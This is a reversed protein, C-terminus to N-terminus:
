QSYIIIYRYTHGALLGYSTSAVFVSMETASKFRVATLAAGTANSSSFTNTTMGSTRSYSTASSTSNKFVVMPAGQNQAGSTKYSPASTQVSKSMAWQGIAYRQMSNYWTSDGGSNYVGGDIYILCAIPYGNGTYPITVTQAAGTTESCTFTGQVVNAAGASISMIAPPMEEPYYQTQVGLKSRIANAIATLITETIKVAGM